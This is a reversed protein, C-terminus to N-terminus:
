SLNPSLIQLRIILNSFKIIIFNIDNEEAYDKRIENKLARIIQKM